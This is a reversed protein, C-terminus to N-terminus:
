YGAPDKVRRAVRLRAEGLALERSMSRAPPSGDESRSKVSSASTPAVPINFEAQSWVLIPHIPWEPRSELQFRTIGIIVPWSLRLGTLSKLFGHKKPSIKPDRKCGRLIGVEGPLWLNGGM